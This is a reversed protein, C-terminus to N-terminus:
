DNLENSHIMIAFWQMAKLKAKLQSLKLSGCIGAPREKAGSKTKSGSKAKPKIDEEEEEEEEKVPEAKV